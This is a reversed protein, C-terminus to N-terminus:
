NEIRILRKERLPAPPVSVTQMGGSDRVVLTYGRVEPQGHYSGTVPGIEVIVQRGERRCVIPTCAVEGKQYRLSVGDDELLDFRAVRGGAPPVLTVTLPDPTKGSEIWQCADQMPLMCGERVFLPLKEVDSTDYQLTQGGDYLTGDWWDMWRQGAPLYIPMVATDACVPAVLMESGFLYQYPWQDANCAPDDPFALLMPRCIPMGTRYNLLAHSYIYPLLRYRLLHHKRISAEATPRDGAELNDTWETKEAVKDYRILDAMNESQLGGEWPKATHSRSFAIFDSFQQWRAQIKWDQGMSDSTIYNYGRMSGYQNTIARVHWKLEGWDYTCDGTWDMPYRRGGILHDWPWRKIPLRDWIRVHFMEQAGLMLARREEGILEQMGTYIVSDTIDNRRTDMWVGRVGEAMRDRLKSWWVEEKYEKCTWAQHARNPFKPVSHYILMVDFHMARLEALMAAPINPTTYKPAWDLGEGWRTAGETFVADGWEFDLILTDCPIGRRRLEHAASMLREQSGHEALHQTQFFGFAKKEPLPEPGILANMQAFLTPYDPGYIFFQDHIENWRHESNESSPALYTDCYRGTEPNYFWHGNRDNLNDENFASAADFLTYGDKFMGHVTGGSPCIRRAGDATWVTLRFDFKSVRIQLVATSIVVEEADETRTFPVPAWNEHRGVAFPIEYAPPFHDQGELRSLRLRFARETFLDVRLREQVPVHTCYVSLDLPNSM